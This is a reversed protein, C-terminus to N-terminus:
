TLVYIDDPDLTMLHLNYRVQRQEQTFTGEFTYYTNTFYHNGKNGQTSKTEFKLSGNTTAQM